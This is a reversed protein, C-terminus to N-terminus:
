LHNAGNSGARSIIENWEFEVDPFRKRIDGAFSVSPLPINKILQYTEIYKANRMPTGYSSIANFYIIIQEYSTLQSRLSKIIEYKNEHSIIDESVGEAYKLIHFLNRFYHGLRTLHGDFPKYDLKELLEAIYYESKLGDLGHWTGKYREIRRFLDLLETYKPIHQLLPENLEDSTQGVGNFLLLYSINALEDDSLETVYFQKTIEFIARLEIYMKSFCRVGHTKEGISMSDIISRNQKVLFIITDEHKDREKDLKQEMFQKSHMENAKFQMYFALFTLVAAAVGIFPSSIGGITDGIQGTNSYDLFTVKTNITFIFVFILAAIVGICWWLTAMKLYDQLSLEKQNM